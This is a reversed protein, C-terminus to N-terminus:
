ILGIQAAERRLRTLARGRMPGISGIATGLAAAIEVYSPLPEAALMRLLARDRPGLRELATQLGIAHHESILREDPHPADSALDPLDDSRPIIRGARRVVKLSERRATTALWGGLCAPDRVDDLKEVLRMWTVQFVDAADAAGLRHARTAAWVVGGFADILANWAAQDGGAARAVLLGVQGGTLRGDGM